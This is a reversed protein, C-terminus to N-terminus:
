RSSRVSARSRQAPISPSANVPRRIPRSAAVALGALIVYAERKDAARGTVPDLEYGELYATGEWNTVRPIVRILRLFIPRIRWQIGCAPGLYYTVGSEPIM